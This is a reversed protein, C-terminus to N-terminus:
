QNVVAELEASFESCALTQCNPFMTKLLRSSWGLDFNVLLDLHIRLCPCFKSGASFTSSQNIDIIM